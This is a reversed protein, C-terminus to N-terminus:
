ENKKEKQKEFQLIEFSKDELKNIRGEAQEFTNNFMEPSRKM